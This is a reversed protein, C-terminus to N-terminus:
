GRPPFPDNGYSNKFRIHGDEGQVSLESREAKALQEGFDIAAKQTTFTKVPTPIGAFKVTWLTGFKVVWVNRGMM